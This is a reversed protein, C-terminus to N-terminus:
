LDGEICKGKLTKDRFGRESEGLKMQKGGGRAMPGKLSLM